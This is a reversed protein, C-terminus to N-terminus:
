NLVNIHSSLPLPMEEIAFNRFFFLAHHFITHKNFVSKTYNSLCRVVVIVDNLYSNEEFLKHTQYTSNNSNNLLVCKVDVCLYLSNILTSTVDDHYHFFYNANQEM